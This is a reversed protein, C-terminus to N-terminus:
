LCWWGWFEAIHGSNVVKKVESLVLGVEGGFDEFNQGGVSAGIMLFVDIGTAILNEEFDAVVDRSADSDLAVSGFIADGFQRVTDFGKDDDICGFVASVNTAGSLLRISGSALKVGM